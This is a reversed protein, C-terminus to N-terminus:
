SVEDIWAMQIAELIKEGCHKPDDDFGELERVWNFLDTFRITEPDVDAHREALAIAIELTDTWKM